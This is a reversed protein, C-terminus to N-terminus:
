WDPWEGYHNPGSCLWASLGHECTEESREEIEALQSETLGPCDYLNANIATYIHPEHVEYSDCFARDVPEPDYWDEEPEYEAQTESMIQYQWDEIPM